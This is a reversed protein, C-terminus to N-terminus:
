SVFITPFNESDTFHRGRISYSLTFREYLVGSEPTQRLHSVRVTLPYAHFHGEFCYPICDNIVIQGRGVAISAGWSDWTVKQWWANGDGCAIVYYAPRIVTRGVCTTVRPTPAQALWRYTPASSVQLHVARAALHFRRTVTTRNSPVSLSIRAAGGKCSVVKPLGRIGPSSTIVCSTAHAAIVEIGVLGGSSSVSGHNLAFTRLVPAPTSASLGVAGAVAVAALTAAAVTLSSRVRRFFAMGDRLNLNGLV